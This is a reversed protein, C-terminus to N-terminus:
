SRDLCPYSYGLLKINEVQLASFHKNYFLGFRTIQVIDVAATLTARIDHSTCILLLYVCVQWCHWVQGFGCRAVKKLFCIKVCKCRTSKFKYTLM